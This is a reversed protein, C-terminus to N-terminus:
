HPEFLADIAQIWIVPGLEESGARISIQGQGGHWEGQVITPLTVTYTVERDPEAPCGVTAVYTVTTQGDVEFVFGLGDPDITALGGTVFGSFSGAAQKVTDPPSYGPSQGEGAGLWSGAVQGTAIDVQLDLSLSQAEPFVPYVPCGAGLWAAIGEDQNWWGWWITVVPMPAQANLNTLDGSLRILGGPERCDVVRDIGYERAIQNQDGVQMADYLARGIDIGQRDVAYEMTDGRIDGGPSAHFMEELAVVLGPTLSWSGLSVLQERYVRDAYAYMATGFLHYYAGANDGGDPRYPRLLEQVPQSKQLRRMVSHSSVLAKFVDGNATKLAQAFIEEIGVTGPQRTDPSNPNLKPSLGTLWDFLPQEVAYFSPDLQGKAGGHGYGLFMLMDWRGPAKSFDAGLPADSCVMARLFKALTDQPLQQELLYLTSVGHTHLWYGYAANGAKRWLFAMWGSFHTTEFTVTDVQADLAVYPVPEWTIVGDRESCGMVLLELPDELTEITGPALPLTVLVPRSFTVGAPELLVVPSVLDYDGLLLAPATMYPHYAREPDPPAEVLAQIRAPLEPDEQLLDVSQFSPPDPLYSAQLGIREGGPLAGAPVDIVLGMLPSSPDEVILSGGESEIVVFAMSVAGSTDLLGGAPAATAASVSEQTPAVGSASATSTPAPATRGVGNMAAVVLAVVVIAGLVLVGLGLLV